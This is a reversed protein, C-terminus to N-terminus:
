DKSAACRREGIAKEAAQEQMLRELAHHGCCPVEAHIITALKACGHVGCRVPVPDMRTM